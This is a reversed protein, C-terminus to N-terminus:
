WTAAFISIAAPDALRALLEAVTHTQGPLCLDPRIDNLPALVFRRLHLRPHPLILTDDHLVLDSVYLIDLDLTRPANRPYRTPRGLAFEISRLAALLAFPDASLEVEIVANLFPGADPGTGVPETEYVRSYLAPASVGPLRMVAERGATLSALRDGLNSGLAIGAKM